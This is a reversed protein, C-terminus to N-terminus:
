DIDYKVQKLQALLKYHELNTYLVFDEDDYNLNITSHNIEVVGDIIGVLLYIEYDKLMVSLNIQWNGEEQLTDVNDIHVFDLGLQWKVKLKNVIRTCAVETEFLTMNSSSFFDGDDSDDGGAYDDLEEYYIQLQALDANAEKWDAVTVKDALVLFERKLEAVFKDYNSM